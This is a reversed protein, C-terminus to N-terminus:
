HQLHKGPCAMWQNDETIHVEGSCHSYGLDKGPVIPIPDKKNNIHTVNLNASDVYDAWAKNGVRPLGYLVTRITTSSPLNLRLYVADLLALAAGAYM